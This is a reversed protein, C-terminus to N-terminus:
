WSSIFVHFSSSASVRIPVVPGAYEGKNTLLSLFADHTQPSHQHSHASSATDMDKAGEGIGDLWTHNTPAAQPPGTDMDSNILSDASQSKLLRASLVQIPVFNPTLVLYPPKLNICM